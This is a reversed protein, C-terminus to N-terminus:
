GNASEGETTEDAAGRGVFAKLIVFVMLAADLLIPLYVNLVRVTLNPAVANGQGDFAGRYANSMFTGFGYITAIILVVFVAVLAFGNVARALRTETLGQSLKRATVAAFGLATLGALVLYIDLHFQNQQAPYNDYNAGYTVYLSSFQALVVFVWFVLLGALPLALAVQGRGFRKGGADNM